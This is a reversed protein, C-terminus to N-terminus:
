EEPKEHNQHAVALWQGVKALLSNVQFPKALYDDCGAALAKRDDDVLGFATIAIVPLGPRIQKILRTAEYGDMVPMKIDM